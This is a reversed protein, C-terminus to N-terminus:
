TGVNLALQSASICHLLIFLVGFGWMKMLHSFQVRGSEHLFNISYAPAHVEITRNIKIKNKASDYPGDLEKVAPTM